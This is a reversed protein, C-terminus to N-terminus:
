SCRRTPRQVLVAVGLVLVAVSAPEPVRGYQLHDVEWDVSNDMSIRIASIGGVNVVGFFRDEDTEGTVGVGDGVTVPGISDIMLEGLADFAEFIVGGEFDNPNAFGVDTWVIGAHTPFGGLANADFTFTLSDETQLTFFSAGGTGSGDISLDDGDVSDTQDSPDIQTGGSVSVGPTNFGDEFDELFFYQFDTGNFPSDNFSLYPSPGLFAAQATATHPLSALAM